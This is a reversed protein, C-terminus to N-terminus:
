TRLQEHSETEVGASREVDKRTDYELSGMRWAVKEQLLDSQCMIELPGGGGALEISDV